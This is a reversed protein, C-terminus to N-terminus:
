FCFVRLSRRIKENADREENQVSPPKHWSFVMWSLKLPVTLTRKKKKCKGILWAFLSTKKKGKNCNKM